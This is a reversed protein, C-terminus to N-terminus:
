GVVTEGSEKRLEDVVSQLVSASALSDLQFRVDLLLDVVEQPSFLNRGPKSAVRLKEDVLWTTYRLHDLSKVDIPEAKPPTTGPGFGFDSM